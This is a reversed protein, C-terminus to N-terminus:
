PVAITDGPRLEINQKLNRRKLFDKYNFAYSVQRGNENRVILINKSDAFEQIGGATALLQVVTMAGTLNYFGPKGVMGTVYVKRSNITKIVVAVTPAEELFKTASKSIKERLQEPTLGGAQLENLLPLSILGDPRVTVEASMDPNRWYSINLVDDPGIVYGTPLPTEQTPLAAPKAAAGAPAAPQPRPQGAPPTAPPQPAPAPTAPPQAPPTAPQQTPPATPQQTPPAAPQQTPMAAGQDPSPPTRAFSTGQSLACALVWACASFRSDYLKKVTGSRM